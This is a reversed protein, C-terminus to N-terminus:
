VARGGHEIRGAVNAFDPWGPPGSKRMPATTQGLDTTAARTTRRSPIATVLNPGPVEPHRPKM